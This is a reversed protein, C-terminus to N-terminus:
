NGFYEKLLTEIYFKKDAPNLDKDSNLEKIDCALDLRYADRDNEALIASDKMRHWSKKNFDINYTKNLDIVLDKVTKAM